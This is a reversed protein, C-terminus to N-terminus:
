STGGYMFEISDYIWQRIPNDSEKEPYEGSLELYVGMRSVLERLRENDAVLEDNRAAVGAIMQLRNIMQHSDPLIGNLANEIAVGTANRESLLQNIRLKMNENQEVLEDHSNIAHAAYEHPSVGDDRYVSVSATKLSFDCPEVHKFFVDAMKLYQKTSM